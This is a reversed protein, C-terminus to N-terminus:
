CMHVCQQTVLLAKMSEFAGTDPSSLPSAPSLPRGSCGLLLAETEAEGPCWWWWWWCWRWAGTVLFWLRDGLMCRGPGGGGGGGGGGGTGAALMEGTWVLFVGTADDVDVVDVVREAATNELDALMADPKGRPPAGLIAATYLVVTAGTAPREAEVSAVAVELSLLLTTFFVGSDGGLSGLCTLTEADAAAVAVAPGVSSSSRLVVVALQGAETEVTWGNAPPVGLVVAESSSLLLLLLVVVRVVLAVAAAPARWAPLGSPPPPPLIWGGAEVVVLAEEGESPAAEPPYSWWQVDVVVAVV